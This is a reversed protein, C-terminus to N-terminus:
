LYAIGPYQGSLGKTHVAERCAAHANSGLYVVPHGQVHTSGIILAVELPQARGAM